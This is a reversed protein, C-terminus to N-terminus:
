LQEPLPYPTWEPDYSLRMENVEQCLARLKANSQPSSIGDPNKYYIGVTDNIKQLKAGGKAARLWMEADSATKYEENFYGFREHVSRRWMPMCHPNNNQLLDKWHNTENCPYLQQSKLGLWKENLEASVITNGYCIDVDPNLILCDKMIELSWPSKRDDVNWNTILEGQTEKVCLNWSAYIGPDENIRRYTINDHHLYRQIVDVENEPSACDLIFFNVEDFISQRLMDEMYGEIFEGGKYIPCYCSVTPYKSSM